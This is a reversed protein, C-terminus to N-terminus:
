VVLQLTQWSVGAASVAAFAMVTVGWFQKLQWSDISLQSKVVVPVVKWSVM